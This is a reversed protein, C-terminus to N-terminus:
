LVGARAGVVPRCRADKRPAPRVQWVLQCYNPPKPPKGEVEEEEEEEEERGAHWDIRRLM